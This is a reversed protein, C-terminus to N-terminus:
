EQYHIEDPLLPHLNEERSSLSRVANWGTVSFTYCLALTLPCNVTYYIVSMQSALSTVGTTKDFHSRVQRPQAHDHHSIPQILSLAPMARCVAYLSYLHVM